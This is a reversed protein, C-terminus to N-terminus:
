DSVLLMLPSRVAFVTSEHVEECASFLVCRLRAADYISSAESMSLNVESCQHWSWVGQVDPTRSAGRPRGVHLEFGVVSAKALSETSETDPHDRSSM